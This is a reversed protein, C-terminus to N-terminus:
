QLLMTYMKNMDHLSMKVIYLQNSRHQGILHSDIIVTHTGASFTSLSVTNVVQGNMKHITFIIPSATSIKFKIQVMESNIKKVSFVKDDFNNKIQRSKVDTNKPSISYSYAVNGNVHNEDIDAPMWARIYDVTTKQPDVTVRMHGSSSLTDGKFADGNDRTGIIYTSDSPMPVEQYVIGDLEEKAFLHDHGQFLINVNNEAMLQHIPKGGWGPRNTEFTQTNGWEYDNAVLVGGRTEGMVHHAFVFKYKNHSNELTKKFWEFQEKGLTWEWGRPKASSTYGRYADLVVFLADGWEWAYYNEPLGIGYDESVTNGSYFSDPVPNPYYFQRALTSNVAMNDPPAQLLWYGSEGEHSAICFYFPASHCILDLYSRMRLHLKMAVVKTVDSPVHDDGFTDGLDLFFDLTDKSINKLTQRFMGDSGKKDYMHPDAEIGFCFKTGASRQTHFTHEDRTIFLSTGSRRYCLTYFYRTNPMLKDIIIELPQDSTAHVTDTAYQYIGSSTGFKVFGDADFGTVVNLTVSRDTVRGLLEKAILTDQSYSCAVILVMIIPMIEMQKM